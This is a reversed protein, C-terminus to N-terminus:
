PWIRAKAELYFDKFGQLNNGKRESAPWFRGRCQKAPTAHMSESGSLSLSLSPTPGHQNTFIFSERVTLNLVEGEVREGRFNQRCESSHVDAHWGLRVGSTPGHLNTTIFSERLPVTTLSESVTM